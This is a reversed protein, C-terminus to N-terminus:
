KRFKVDGKIYSAGTHSTVGTITDSFIPVSWMEEVSHPDFHEEALIETALVSTIVGTIVTKKLVENM